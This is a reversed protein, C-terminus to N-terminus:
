SKASAACAVQWYLGKASALLDSPGAAAAALRTQVMPPPQETPMSVFLIRLSPWFISRSAHILDTLGSYQNGTEIRKSEKQEAAEEIVPPSFVIRKPQRGSSGSSDPGHTSAARNAHRRSYNESEGFFSSRSAQILNTLGSYQSGTEDRNPESQEAVEELVPPAAVPSREGSTTSASPAIDCVEADDPM